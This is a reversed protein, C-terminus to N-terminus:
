SVGCVFIKGDTLKVMLAKRVPRLGDKTVFSDFQYPNYIVEILHLYSTFAHLNSINGVVFAHVNKRKEKLVKKRGAQRVTFTVDTLTIEPVHRIVRGNKKGEAAM